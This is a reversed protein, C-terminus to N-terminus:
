VAAAQKEREPSKRLDHRNSLRARRWFGRRGSQQLGDFDNERGYIRHAHRRAGSLQLDIRRIQRATRACRQERAASNWNNWTAKNLGAMEAFYGDAGSAGLMSSSQSENMPRLEAFNLQDKRLWVQATYLRPSKAYIKLGRYEFSKENKDVAVVAVAGKGGVKTAQVQAANMGWKLAGLGVITGNAKTNPKLKARNAALAAKSLYIAAEMQSFKDGQAAKIAGVVANGKAEGKATDRDRKEEGGKRDITDKIKGFLDAHAPTAACLIPATLALILMSRTNFM